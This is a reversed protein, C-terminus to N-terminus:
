STKLVLPMEALLRRLSSVLAKEYNKQDLIHFVKFPGDSVPKMTTRLDRDITVRVPIFDFLPSLQFGPVPAALAAWADGQRCFQRGAAHIMPGTCWMERTKAWEKQKLEPEPTRTLYAIPDELSVVKRGLAYLFFNQLSAPLADFVDAQRFKWYTQYDRFQQQGPSGDPTGGGGICPCWYVPLDSRMLRIYAQPDLMTNWEAGGPGSNGAHVYIQEVKRQFLAEDRNFAAAVDRLSGVANIVVRRESGRLVNLMMAVGGQAWDPQELGKDEPYRLPLGLATAYPVSRGTLAMMQKLPVDGPKVLQRHGLDLIVARIDFEPLAFLTALDVHDDPDDPPHFLDTYHIVPIRAKGAATSQGLALGAETGSLVMGACAARVMSKLFFRRRM